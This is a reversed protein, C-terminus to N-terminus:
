TGASPSEYAQRIIGYCECCSAELGERDRITMKGWAYKIYGAEQLKQASQTITSRNAGLMQGIFEHTLHIVEGKVRDHHMLLWRILRQDISHWRNCLTTQAVQNSFRGVFSLVDERFERENEFVTKATSVPVRIVDGGLQMTKSYPSTAAGMLAMLGVAGEQGVVGIEATQGEAMTGVVSIMASVPFYLDKIPEYPPLLEEGFSPKVYEFELSRIAADSLRALLKNESPLTFSDSMASWM